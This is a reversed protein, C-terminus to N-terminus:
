WFTILSRVGIIRNDKDRVAGNETPGTNPVTIHNRWIPWDIRGRLANAVIISVVYLADEEPEEPLGNIEGYEVRYLPVDNVKGWFVEKQSVRAARFSDVSLILKDGKYVNLKHPTLNVIRM